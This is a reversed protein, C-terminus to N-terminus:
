DHDRDRTLKELIVTQKAALGYLRSSLDDVKVAVKGNELAMAHIRENTKDMSETIRRNISERVGSVEDKMEAGVDGVKQVLQITGWVSGGAISIILLVVKWAATTNLKGNELASIQKEHVGIRDCSDAIKKDMFPHAGCDECDKKVM